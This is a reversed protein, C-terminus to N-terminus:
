KDAQLFLENYLKTWGDFERVYNPRNSLYLKQIPTESSKLDERASAYGISQYMEQAEKSLLFDVMLMMAHPHPARSAVAVGTDTVPVPGPARWALPAGKKKSAAVHSNYITPSLAVEGSAMLNALARGSMEYVRINQKAVQRLFDEGKTLVITGVWNAATALTGSMAMKDKWKPDVLDDYTKPAQDPPVLNTNFGIGTYSERVVIWHGGSEKADDPYAAAAPSYFPILAGAERPVVLGHSALEFGDVAYHGAQYEEYVKRGVAASGARFLEVNIYPYKEQFRKILPAIQTGTTYILLSGEKRAGAELVAQRDAGQYTAIEKVKQADQAQAPLVLAGLALTATLIGSGAYHRFKSFM